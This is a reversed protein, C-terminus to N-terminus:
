AAKLADASLMKDLAAKVILVRRGVKIAPLQGKKAATYTQNLPLGLLAAAEPVEYTKREVEATMDNVSHHHHYGSSRYLAPNCPSFTTAVVLIV